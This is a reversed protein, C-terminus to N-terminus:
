LDHRIIRFCIVCASILYHNPKTFLFYILYKAALRQAVGRHLRLLNFWYWQHLHSSIFKDMDLHTITWYRHFQFAFNPRVNLVSWLNHLIHSTLYWFYNKKRFNLNNQLIMVYNTTFGLVIFSFIFHHYARLWYNKRTAAWENIPTYIPSSWILWEM